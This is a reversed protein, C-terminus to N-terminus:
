GAPGTSASPQTAPETPAQTPTQVVSVSAILRGALTPNFLFVGVATLSLVALCIFTIIAAKHKM